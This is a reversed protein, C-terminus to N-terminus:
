ECGIPCPGAAAPAAAAADSVPVAMEAVAAAVNQAMALVPFTLAAFVASAAMVGHAMPVRVAAPSKKKM